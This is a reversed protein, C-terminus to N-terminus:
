SDEFLRKKRGRREWGGRGEGEENYWWHTMRTLTEGEYLQRQDSWWGVPKKKNFGMPERVQM